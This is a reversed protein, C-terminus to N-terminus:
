IFEARYRASNMQRLSGHPRDNNYQEKWAELVGHAEELNRLWHQSLCERRVLSNIAEIYANDGPITFGKRGAWCQLWSDLVSLSGVVGVARILGTPYLEPYM